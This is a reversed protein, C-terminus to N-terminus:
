VGGLYITQGTVANSKQAIFFDTAHSIDEFSIPEKIITNDLTLKKAKESINKLMGSEAVISMGLVNIRIGYGAVEKAFVRSFQELAAKSASYISNGVTGLPVAISSMHIIRGYNHKKMIKAAERCFLFPGFMNVAFVEQVTKYDTLLPHNISQMGANNILVSLSGYNKSIEVFMEKVKKEDSIDLIFHRYNENNQTSEHRSCGIVKFGKALYYQTLYAGISRSAGTILMVHRDSM